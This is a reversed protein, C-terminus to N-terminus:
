DRRRRSLMVWLLRGFRGFCFLLFPVHDWLVVERHPGKLRASVGEGDIELLYSRLAGSLLVLEPMVLLIFLPRPIDSVATAIAVMTLVQRLFVPLHM